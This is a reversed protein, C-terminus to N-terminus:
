NVQIKKQFRVTSQQVNQPMLGLLVTKEFAKLKNYASKGSEINEIARAIKARDNGQKKTDNIAASELGFKTATNEILEMEFDDEEGVSLVKEWIYILIQTLDGELFKKKFNDFNSNEGSSDFVKQSFTQNFIKKM